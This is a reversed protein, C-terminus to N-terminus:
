SDFHKQGDIQLSLPSPSPLSAGLARPPSLSSSSPKAPLVELHPWNRERVCVTVERRHRTRYLRCSPGRRRLGFAPARLCYSLGLAHSEADTATRTRVIGSSTATRKGAREGATNKPAKGPKSRLLIRPTISKASADKRMSERQIQQMAEYNTYHPRQPAVECGSDHQEHGVVGQSRIVLTDHTRQGLYCLLARDPRLCSILM